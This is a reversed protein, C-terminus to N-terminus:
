ARATAKMPIPGFSPPPVRRQSAAEYATAVKLQIDEKGPEARFVLSFPLGPEPITTPTPSPASVYRMGDPTLKFVPDYVSTVYGAPVLMESLGANPGSLSEPRLNSPIDYQYAHGILGPAWPTHLRVLCDLKNELIVMMDVRRLLERLMIRENVGQRGGLPNRPDATEEWNKFAARQDDGWFKSRANLAAFDTLTETFGKERWDAARRTLYQPIHFRFTNALEQHQITGLDLNVPPEILGEALAVCYDIPTMTGSGFVKGPMFETPLIAAAFEKFVPQGDRRLRFLLDPMFVPVLRALAKRFDVSMQEVEPDPTWLPDSSEVLTAGLTRGLVDKIEKTAATVIPEETKSDAPYSMSERIVGIRVGKLAGSPASTTVHSLYPTALVSSRPVTTFPDRPDYYGNEPDKLADLIRACDALARAHIGTRDCYIDAGIAGGDFGLMAKHPLILAVANHNSPGRCSARTEEGLSAMVLNTSVSLASGSSSGLSAARKTDYPNSPNGGWTSRQYGLTSPLVQDPKHQGGPDGARGNYETNIAKAFIIAGKNRLQEVLVHDRAPFDMDYAADGGGTSRMDKTDFPDKFSFVVGYMPMKELDPNTGYTADLEAAHELADPLHRFFQCVPPAGPPLDGLSPHKDFDSRCTVSREGRINLTGIANVQGANPIGVIMGFQQMVEPDSATAEMRGFELPPGKYKDLDPLIDSVKATQTPFRLPELARVAGTAEPVPAGDETVLMSAVGNFARCRDIYHQVIDVVTIEGARIAAQMEPITAEELQFPIGPTKTM